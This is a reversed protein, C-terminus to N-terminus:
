QEHRFQASAPRDSLLPGHRDKDREAREQHRQGAAPRGATDGVATVQHEAQGAAQHQAHDAEIQQGLRQLGRVVLHEAHRRGQQEEHGTEQEGMRHFTQQGRVTALLVTVARGLDAEGGGPGHDQVAGHVAHRDARGELHAAAHSRGDRHGHDRV